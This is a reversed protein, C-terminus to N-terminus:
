VRERCSARGIETLGLLVAAAEALASGMSHWFLASFSVILFPVALVAEARLAPWFSHAFCRFYTRIRYGYEKKVERLTVQYLATVAPGITVVPLACLVFILNLVIFEVVTNIYDFLPSELNQKM